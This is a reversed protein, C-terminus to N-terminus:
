LGASKGDKRPDSVATLIGHLVQDSNPQRVIKRAVDIQSPLTHVILQSIAGSAQAKLEHGREKLIKREESLEIHIHDGNIVTRNKYLVENPQVVSQYELYIREYQVAALSEMGLVFHNLFVQIMAPPIFPGNSGGIIGVLQNDKLIIIPTMSSLPRKRPEVFNAPAPPLKDVPIETPTSFDDMENNLVIGTSPSLVGAGFYSNVTTTM